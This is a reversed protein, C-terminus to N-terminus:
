EYNVEILSYPYENKKYIEMIEEIHKSSFKGDSSIHYINTSNKDHAKRLSRGISQIIPISKKGPEIMVLNFLRPINIGISAIGYTLILVRNDDQNIEKYISRRLATKDSGKLFISNDILKELKEGYEINRIFVLTNGEDGIAKIFEALHSIRKETEWQWRMEEIYFAHNKKNNNYSLTLTDLYKLIFIHCQALFGIDQLYKASVMEVVPGLASIINYTSLTDDSLTGTMGIRIPVNKGQKTLLKNLVVASATHCEDCIVTTVSGFLESYNELSQWTTITIYRAEKVDAYYIGCSELGMALITDRLDLVLDQRPVIILIKGFEYYLKCLAAIVIQKGAGTAAVLLGGGAKTISNVSNYQHPEMIGKFDGHHHGEFFKGDIEPVRITYDLRYDAIVIDYGANKVIPIVIHLLHRFTSGDKKLLSIKGNWRAARVKEMYHAGKVLFTLPAQATALTEKDLGELRVNVEDLIHITCVSM